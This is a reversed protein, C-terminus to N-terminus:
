RSPYPKSIPLLMDEKELLHLNETLYAFKMPYKYSRVFM